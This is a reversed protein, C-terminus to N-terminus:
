TELEKKMAEKIKEILASANELKIDLQTLAISVGQLLQKLRANEDHLNLVNQRWMELESM